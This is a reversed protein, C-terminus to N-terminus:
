VTQLLGKGSFWAVTDKLSERIPRPRYGLQEQAKQSSILSNSKLTSISSRNILGKTGTLTGYITFIQALASMVGTPLKLRPFPVDLIESLEKMLTDVSIWGGSLIYKEGSQGKEAALIHGQVVDRVDVFDYGGEIRVPIKGRAYDLIMRGTESPKFDYPGIIGTPLMIVGDLGKEIIELVQLTGKAKSKSYAMSIRGPDCPASEDIVCGKPPEVLAHISSTYILRAVGIELCVKAVNRAGKVNVDVLLDSKGPVLDIVSALHYVIEAGYFAKHLSEVDRVDGKVIEVDLGQLPTLDEGPLVMCRVSKGRRCLARVLNNGLHGAAGTVAIM